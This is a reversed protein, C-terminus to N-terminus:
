RGWPTPVDAWRFLIEGSEPDRFRERKFRRTMAGIVKIPCFPGVPTWHPYRDVPLEQILLFDDGGTYTDPDPLPSALRLSTWAEGAPNVLRPDLKSQDLPTEWDEPQRTM